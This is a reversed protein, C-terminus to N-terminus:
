PLPSLLGLLNSAKKGGPSTSDNLKGKGTGRVKSFIEGGGGGGKTKLINGRRKPILPSSIQWLGRWKDVSVRALLKAKREVETIDENLHSSYSKDLLNALPPRTHESRGAKREKSHLEIVYCPLVQAANFIVWELGSSSIISYFKSSKAIM